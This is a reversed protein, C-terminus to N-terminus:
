AGLNSVNKASSLIEIGGYFNDIVIEAVAVETGDDKSIWRNRLRGEVQLHMNKQLHKVLMDVLYDNSVVVNHVDTTPSSTDSHAISFCAIKAAETEWIKPETELYGTIVLKNM